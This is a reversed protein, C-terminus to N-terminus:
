GTQGSRLNKEHSLNLIDPVERILVETIGTEELGIDLLSGRQGDTVTFGSTKTVVEALARVASMDLYVIIGAPVSETGVTLSDFRFEPDIFTSCLDNISGIKMHHESKWMFQIREDVAVLTEKIPKKVSAGGFCKKFQRRVFPIETCCGPDYLDKMGPILFQLIMHMHVTDNGTTSQRLISLEFFGTIPEKNRYFDQTILKFTLIQSQEVCEKQLLLQGKGGSAFFQAVRVAPILETIFQIFFIPARVYLFGEIPEAIGNVIQSPIGVLNRDGVAADKRDALRFGDERCASFSGTIGFPGDCQLVCFEDPAKKHMHKRGSELLDPIVTEEVIPHFGFVQLQDKLELSMLAEFLPVLVERHSFEQLPDPM